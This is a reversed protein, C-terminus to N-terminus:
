KKKRRIRSGALGAIGTCFLFMTTPEPVPVSEIKTLTLESGFGSYINEGPGNVWESSDVIKGVQWDQIFGEDSSIWVRHSMKFTVEDERGGQMSYDSFDAREFPDSDNDGVYTGYDPNYWDPTLYPDSILKAFFMDNNPRDKYTGYIVGDNEWEIGQREIDILFTYSIQDGNTIGFADLLGLTDWRDYIVEGEFTYYMPVAWVHGIGTFFLIMSSLTILITKKM